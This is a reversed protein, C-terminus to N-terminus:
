SELDLPSHSDDWKEILFTLHAMEELIEETKPNKNKLYELRKTCEKYDEVTTIIRM